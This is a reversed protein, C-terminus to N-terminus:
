LRDPLTMPAAAQNAVAQLSQFMSMLKDLREERSQMGNHLTRIVGAQLELRKELQQQLEQLTTGTSGAASLAEEAKGLRVSLEQLGKVLLDFKQSVGGLDSRLADLERSTRTFFEFASELRQRDEGVLAHIDKVTSALAELFTRTFHESYQQFGTSPTEFRAPTTQPAPKREWNVPKAPALRSPPPEEAVAATAAAPREESAAPRQPAGLMQELRNLSVKKDPQPEFEKNDFISLM